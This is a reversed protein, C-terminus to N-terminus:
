INIYVKYLVGVGVALIGLIFLNRGQKRDQDSYSYIREGNPLTKKQNMLFYGVLLTILPVIVVFIYGIIIWTKQSVEPKLLEAIREQRISNLDVEVGREKLLKLALEYDLSNWEDPKKVIDILEDDTFTYLYHDQDIGKIEKEAIKKLLENARDFDESKLKIIYEQTLANNSFTLDFSSTNNETIFSINNSNLTETLEEALAPDNFCRYQIYKSTM